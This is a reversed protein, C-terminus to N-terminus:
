PVVLAICSASSRSCYWAQDGDGERLLTLTEQMARHDAWEDEQNLGLDQGGNGQKSLSLSLFAQALHAVFFTGENCLRPEIVEVSSPHADRSFVDAARDIVVQDPKRILTSVEPSEHVRDCLPCREDGAALKATVQRSSGDNDIREPAHEMDLVLCEIAPEHRATVKFRSVARHHISRQALQV